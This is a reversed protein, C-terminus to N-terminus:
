LRRRGCHDGSHPNGPIGSRREFNGGYGCDKESRGDDGAASDGGAGVPEDGAKILNSCIDELATVGMLFVLTGGTRM